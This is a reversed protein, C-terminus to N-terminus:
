QNQESVALQRILRTHFDRIVRQRQAPDYVFFGEGTKLGLKNQAIKERLLASSQQATSISPLLNDGVTCWIDIGGFDAIELQGTTAYRFAPGFKLAKDIDEPSAADQEILSFVERAIAQQIRNAILGPIDKRVRITKKGVCEFLAEVRELVQPASNGFDSLEVLPILHAPNYWHCVLCQAVRAPRVTERMAALRLSSTNSALIADDRCLADLKAFLAQKLALDEPIAEIVFDSHAVADALEQQFVIRDMVQPIARAAIRGMEALLTLEAEIANRAREVVRADPEYVQVRYGHVAFVEAIGHGMTGAGIVTIHEIDKM